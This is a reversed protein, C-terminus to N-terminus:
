FIKEVKSQLSKNYKSMRELKDDLKSAFYNYIRQEYIRDSVKVLGNDDKLIGYM